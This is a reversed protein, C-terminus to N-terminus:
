SGDPLGKTRPEQWGAVVLVAAAMAGWIAAGVWGRPNDGLPWWSLLYSLTWPVVILVLGLFGFADLRPPLWAAVIAAVGAGIWLAGWVPLPWLRLLVRIGSTDPLPTTIQAYGYLAWVTGLAGLIVGRRGLAQRMRRAAGM